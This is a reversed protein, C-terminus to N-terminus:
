SQWEEEPVATAFYIIDSMTREFDWDVRNFPEDRFVLTSTQGGDLTYANKVGRAHIIKAVDNIQARHTYVGEQGMTMLLYHLKDKQAIVSRSYQNNPEGVPYDDVQRLEYNEVLIPGFAIGFVVDNDEVFRQAEGEGALEKMHSFLMDGDATFFCSEVKNPVVRYVKRQYVTIGLRRYDYFDGNIAVVANATRAMDSARLQVSSGYSNGALARRLQSGHAIKVEAFSVACRDVGEKWCIVLITDDCYYRMVSGEMFEIDPNWVLEQGELLPAASDIVAQIVAPDSTEGYCAENPKPAVLDEEPITYVKKIVAIGELADGAANTVFRDVRGAADFRVAQSRATVSGTEPHLNLLVWGLALLSLAILLLHLLLSGLSPVASRTAASSRKDM